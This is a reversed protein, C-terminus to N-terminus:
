ADRGASRIPFLDYTVWPTATAVKDYVRRATANDAATIWRVVSRGESGALRGLSTLLAQGVGAGRAAPGTFLDDLYIGVTGSAPRHFSRYHAFGVVQGDLVAVLARVEISEDHIWEWVRLIVDDDPSLRYFERYGRFLEAWQDFDDRSIDRIIM